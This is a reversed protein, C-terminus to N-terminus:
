KHILSVLNQQDQAQRSLSLNTYGFTQIDVTSWSLFDSRLPFAFYFQKCFFFLFFLLSFSFLIEQSVWKSLRHISNTEIYSSERSLYHWRTQKGDRARNQVSNAGNQLKVHHSLAPVSDRLQLQWPLYFPKRLHMAAESCRMSELQSFHRTRFCDGSSSPMWLSLHSLHTM